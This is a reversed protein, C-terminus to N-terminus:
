CPSGPKRGTVGPLFRPTKPQRTNAAAIKANLCASPAPKGNARLPWSRPTRPTPPPKTPPPPETQLYTEGTFAQWYPNEVGQWVVEEDSLDFAHQSHM